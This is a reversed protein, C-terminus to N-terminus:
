ENEDEDEDYATDSFYDVDADESPKTDKNAKDMKIKEVKDYFDETNSATFEELDDFVEQADRYAMLLDENYVVNGNKFDFYLEDYQFGRRNKTVIIKRSKTKKDFRMEIMGTTNHKLKNTGLFKGGKGVQQISLFSTYRKLDNNALNHLKMLNIMSLEAQKNSLENSEKIAEHLESFSDILVIDYGDSLALKIQGLMDDDDLEMVHIMPIEAFMPFRKIYGVMDTKTMEANIFLCRKGKNMLKSIVEMLITSKGIGGDGVMIYNTAPMIGGESSFVGDILTDTVMPIFLDDTYEFDKMLEVTPKKLEKTHKEKRMNINNDAKFTMGSLELGSKGATRPNTRLLQQATNVVKVDDNYCFTAQNNWGNFVILRFDVDDPIGHQERIRQEAELEKM